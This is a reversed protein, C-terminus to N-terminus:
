CPVPEPGGGFMFSVLYVLDSIDPVSSGDGNIDAEEMCPPEPGGGFMFSVLYVLDSIDPVPAGDHNIDARYFCCTGGGSVAWYGHNLGYNESQGSGVATQGATGSMSYNASAAATGGSSIVQWTITEGARSSTAKPSNTADVPKGADSDGAAMATAVLLVAVFGALMARNFRM